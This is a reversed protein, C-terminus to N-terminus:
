LKRKLILCGNSYKKHQKKFCGCNHGSSDMFCGDDNNGTCEGILEYELEVEWETPQLLQIYEKSKQWGKEAIGKEEFRGAQHATEWCDIMDDESFKKDGLLEIAKQFGMRFASVRIIKEHYSYKPNLTIYENVIKNLDYGNEISLCNSQSLTNNATSGLKQGDDAYLDYRDDRKVLQM